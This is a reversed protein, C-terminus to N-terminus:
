RERAALRAPRETDQHKHAECREIIKDWPIPEYVRHDVEGSTDILKPLLAVAVRCYAEKNKRHLENLASEGYKEWHEAFQKVFAEGFKVRAGKPRGAPNGSQGAQFRNGVNAQKEGTDDPTKSKVKRKAKKAMARVANM